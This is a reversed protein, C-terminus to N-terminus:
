ATNKVPKRHVPMRTYKKCQFCHWVVKGGQLRVRGTVGPLLFHYCHKCFLRKYEAPVPVLYKMSIKRALHVYRDALVMDGGLAKQQALHFLRHIRHLAIGQQQQKTIRRRKVM